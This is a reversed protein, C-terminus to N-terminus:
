YSYPVRNTSRATIRQTASYGGQGARGQVPAIYTRYVGNRLDMFRVSLFHYRPDKKGPWAVSTKTRVTKWGSPTRRQLQVKHGGTGVYAEVFRDRNNTYLEPASPGRYRLVRVVKVPETTASGPHVAAIRVSWSRKHLYRDIFNRAQSTGTQDGLLHNTCTKTEPGGLETVCLTVPIEHQEAAPDSTGYSVVDAYISVLESSYADGVRVQEYGHYRYDLRWVAKAAPEDAGASPAATHAVVTLPITVVAALAAVLTRTRHM